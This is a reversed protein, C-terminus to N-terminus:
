SKIRTGHVLMYQAIVALFVITGTMILIALRTDIDSIGLIGQRFANIMYLIPNLLSLQRWFEPLMTISYFVGGLYILPLLFFTPVISIDDFDTAVIGNILGALSFLVATMTGVLLTLGWDHVAIPAFCTAVLAVIIGISMGRVVGGAVHGLLITLPSVPAVLIEEVNHQFKASFFSASVNAYANNIVAMLILGPTIYHMYPQENILGIRQGILAGFIVFYMSTSIISPVVTQLWIRSFRTVEKRLITLFAVWNNGGPCIMM